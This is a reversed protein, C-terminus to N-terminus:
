DKKKKFPDFDKLKDKIKNIEKNANKDITEKAKQRLSDSIVGKTMTDIKSIVKDEANKRAEELVRKTEAEAKAKAKEVEKNVVKTITDRAKQKQKSVETKLSDKWKKGEDKVKNEIGKKVTQGDGKVPIIKIEPNLLKGKIKIDLFIHDGQSLNIGIKDAEKELLSLGTNAASTVKNKELMERPIKLHCLLDMGVGFNHKGSIDMDIGNFSKQVPKFDVIGKVIEFWNKTNTLDINQFEKIQLTNGLKSLPPYSKLKGQFTEIFGSADLTSLDISMKQTLNGKMVLTTNFMGEIYEAVPMIKKFVEIQRLAEIFKIKSLDLKVSYGPKEKVKTDYVGDFSINGGFAKTNFGTIFAEKNRISITGIADSMIIDTYKLRSFNGNIDVMMREPIEYPATVEEAIKNESQPLFMDCDFNDSQINLNGKLIGNSFVYDFAEKVIGSVFFDSNKVNGSFRNIELTNAEFNGKLELNNFDLGNSTLQGIKGDITMGSKKIFTKQKTDLSIEEKHQSNEASASQNWEDLNIKDANFVLDSQMGGETTFYALPNIIKAKLDVTSSGLKTNHFDFHVVRPTFDGNFNEISISPKNDMKVLIGSGAVTGSCKIKEFDESLIHSMKTDFFVNFNMTGGLKEFSTLQLSRQVNTLNLRGKLLGNFNQDGTANNVNLRGSLTEKNITFVFNPIQVALDKYDPKNAFTRMDMNLNEVAFPSGPYLVYGDKVNVGFDFAPYHLLKGNYKGDLKLKLGAKGSTKVQKFDNTYADPVVSLLNRIDEFPTEIDWKMTIDDGTFHIFGDGKVDLENLKLVNDKLTYKEEKLNIDFVADLSLQINKMYSTGDYRVSLSDGKTKTDLDFQDSAFNGTGTHNVKKISFYLPITQDVYKIDTNILEYKNIYLHFPPTEGEQLTSDASTIQYNTLGNSLVLINISGDELGIYDITPTVNKSILSWVNLDFRLKRTNLLPVEFFTDRGTVSLDLISIHVDPFSRIFSVDVDRFVVDAILNDNVANQLTAVIKDKFIFPFLLLAVFIGTFTYLLYRLIKKLM